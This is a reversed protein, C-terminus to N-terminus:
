REAGAGSRSRSGGRCRATADMAALTRKLLDIETWAEALFTEVTATAERAQHAESRAAAVDQLQEAVLERLRALEDLVAKLAAQDNDSLDWTPDGAAMGEVREVQEAFTETSM